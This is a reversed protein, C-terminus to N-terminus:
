DSMSFIMLSFALGVMVAGIAIPVDFLSLLGIQWIALALWFKENKNMRIGGQDKLEVFQVLDKDQRERVLCM